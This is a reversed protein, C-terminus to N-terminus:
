SPVGVGPTAVAVRPLRFWFTSGQGMTSEVGIEGRLAEIAMRCFTLGLGVSHFRRQGNPNVQGFKEFITGLHEPPIGPGRDRVSVKLWADDHEVSITAPSEADEAYKIANSALNQLVRGVLGADCHLLLPQEPRDFRVHKLMDPGLLRLAQDIVSRLDVSTLTLPMQGAEMRSVDLVTHTMDTMRRVLLGAEALLASQEANLAGDRDTGILQLYASIASLPSRLDHIMMHVLSDRMAELEKLRRYQEEIRDYLQKATVANRVRLLLDATDVPKSIFDLAGARIGQLREQRATLATILLVPVVATAPAAKLQRCVEFGDLRPMMVDLLVADPASRAATELASLGDTAVIVEYGHATLMESLLFRNQEEDDVVLIRGTSTPPGPTSPDTM